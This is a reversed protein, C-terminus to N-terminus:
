APTRGGEGCGGFRGRRRLRGVSVSLANGEGLSGVFSGSFGGSGGGGGVSQAFIGYSGKGDGTLGGTTIDGSNLVTVTNGDGAM